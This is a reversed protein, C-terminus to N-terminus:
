DLAGRNHSRSIRTIGACPRGMPMGGRHGFGSARRIGVSRNNPPAKEAVAFGKEGGGTGLKDWCSCCAKRGLSRGHWRLMPKM